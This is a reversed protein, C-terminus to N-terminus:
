LSLNVQESVALKSRLGSIETTAADLKAAIESIDRSGKKSLEPLTTFIPSDEPTNELIRKLFSQIEPIAKKEGGVCDQYFIVKLDGLDFPIRTKSIALLVTGKRLSHRVDLEYFVNPNLDTLDAIVDDCRYIHEIVSRTISGSESIFDARICNFMRNGDEGM